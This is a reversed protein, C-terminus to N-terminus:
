GMEDAVFRPFGLTGLKAAPDSLPQSLLLCQPVDVEGVNLRGHPREFAAAAAAKIHLSPNPQLDLVPCYRTDGLCSRPCPSAPAPGPVRCGPGFRPRRESSPGRSRLPM